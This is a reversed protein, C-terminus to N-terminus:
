QLTARRSQDEAEQRGLQSTKAGDFAYKTNVSSIRGQVLGVDHARRM